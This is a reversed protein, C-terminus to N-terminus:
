KGTHVVINGASIAQNFGNDYVVHEGSADEWWIKIRFTDPAGDGAWLMFKYAKGNPDLAGNVMGSGKFQATVKDKSVVLWDYATSYFNFGGAQFRFETSGSPVKAGKLYKSMFGFTAKGSLSIDPRYAGAPSGIWGGGSVFGASPDYIVALTCAQASDLAGDNVTLCVNYIGVTTYTHAPMAGAGSSGDGFDWTYTLADGDPDSSGSGDFPIATNIAALYPGGPNVLPVNNEESAVVQTLALTPENYLYTYDTFIATIEHSGSELAATTCTAPYDGVDVFYGNEDLLLNLPLDSCGDMPNEDALITILGAPPYPNNADGTASVTFTVAEGLASPNSSSALSFVGDSKIELSYFHLGTAHNADEAKVSFYYSGTTTPMGSLVGDASLTLGDPFSSFSDEPVAYTYPAAGGSASFAQNYAVGVSGTPLNSESPSLTITPYYFGIPVFINGTLVFDELVTTQQYGTAGIVTLRYCQGGSPIDMFSFGGWSTATSYDIGGDCNEDLNITWGNEYLTSEDTDKIANQNSDRYLYGQIVFYRPQVALEQSASGSTYYDAYWGTPTYEARFNHTGVALTNNVVQCLYYANLFPIAECGPAVQDDIFFAVTGGLAVASTPTTYKRVDVSINFPSNWSINSAAYITVEPTGKDLVFTYNRDATNNYADEVRVTIPYQGPLTNDPFGSLLGSSSLTVGSPLSGNLLSFTHPAYGGSVTLQQSYQTQYAANPLTDPGITMFPALVNWTYQRSGLLIHNIDYAGVTFTFSFTDTAALWGSLEGIYNDNDVSYLTQLVIGPPLQGDVIEYTLCGNWDPYLFQTVYAGNAQDWLTIPTITVTPPEGVTQGGDLVVTEDAYMALYQSSFEATIIHDGSLLTSITCTAPNGPTGVTNYPDNLPVDSCISVGDVYFDVTGYPLFVDDTGTAFLTFTVPLGYDAPTASSTFVFYAIDTAVAAVVTQAPNAFLLGILLAIVVLFNLKTKM